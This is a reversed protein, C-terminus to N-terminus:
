SDYMFEQLNKNYNNHEVNWNSIDNTYSSNIWRMVNSSTLMKEGEGSQNSWWNNEKWCSKMQEATCWVTQHPLDRNWGYFIFREWLINVKIHNIMFNNEQDGQSLSFKIETKIGNICRDYVDNYKGAGAVEFGKEKMFDEVVKEGVDGKAKQTLQNYNKMNTDKWYNSYKIKSEIFQELSDVNVIM